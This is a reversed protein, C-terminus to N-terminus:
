VEEGGVRPVLAPDDRAIRDDRNSGAGIWAALFQLPLPLNPSTKTTAMLTGFGM